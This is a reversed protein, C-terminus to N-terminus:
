IETAEEVVEEAPAPTEVKAAKEKSKTQEATEFNSRSLFVEYLPNNPGDAAFKSKFCVVKIREGAFEIPVDISGRLYLTGNAQSKARWLNGIKANNKQNTKQQNTEM